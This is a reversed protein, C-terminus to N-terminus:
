CWGRVWVHEVVGPDVCRDHGERKSASGVRTRSRHASRSFSVSTAVRALIAPQRGVDRALVEGFEAESSQDFAVAVAPADDVAESAGVDAVEQGFCQEVGVVLDAAFGYM